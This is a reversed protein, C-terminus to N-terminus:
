SEYNDMGFFAANRGHEIYGLKDDWSDEHVSNAFIRVTKFADMMLAVQHAPIDEIRLLAGWVRGISTLNGYSDGYQEQRDELIQKIKSM